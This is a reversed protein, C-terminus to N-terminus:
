KVFYNIGKNHIKAFGAKQQYTGTRVNHEVSFCLDHKIKKRWFFNM